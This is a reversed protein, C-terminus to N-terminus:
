KFGRQSKGCRRRRRPAAAVSSAGAAALHARARDDGGLFEPALVAFAGVPELEVGFVRADARANARRMTEPM